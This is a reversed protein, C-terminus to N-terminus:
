LKAIGTNIRRNGPADAMATKMHAAQDVRCTTCQDVNNLEIRDAHRDGNIFPVINGGGILTLMPLALKGFPLKGGTKFQGVAFGVRLWASKFRYIVLDVGVGAGDRQAGTKGIRIMQQQGPAHHVYDQGGLLRLRDRQHWDGRKLLVLLAVKHQHDGRLIDHLNALYSQTFLM